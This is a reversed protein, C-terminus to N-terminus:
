QYLVEWLCLGHAPAPEGAQGRDKSRVIWAIDGARLKARGVAVLTGVVSRVM